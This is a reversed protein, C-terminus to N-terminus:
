LILDRFVAEREVNDKWGKNIYKTVKEILKSKWKWMNEEKKGYRLM